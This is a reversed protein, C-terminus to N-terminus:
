CLAASQMSGGRLLVAVGDDASSACARPRRDQSGGLQKNRAECAKGSVWREMQRALLALLALLAGAFGILTAVEPGWVRFLLGPSTSAM